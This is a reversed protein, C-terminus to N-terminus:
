MLQKHDHVFVFGTFHKRNQFFGFSKIFQRTVAPASLLVVRM